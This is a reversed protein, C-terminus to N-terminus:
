QESADAFVDEDAEEMADGAAETLVRGSRWAELYADKEVFRERLWAALAVEDDVPLADMAYRKVHVHLRYDRAVDGAFLRWMSPAHAAADATPVGGDAALARHEYCLTLDYVAQVHSGRLAQVTQVFGKTRPQLVHKLPKLERDM